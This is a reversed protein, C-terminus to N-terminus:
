PIALVIKGRTHGQEILRHATAAEALPLVTSVEMELAGADFWEACRELIEAQHARAAPLDRLMPTLMLEFGIRLNRNRAEKWCVDVGPDLLTVLDGYPAVTDITRRFTEGGVTDLAIAVGAGDTWDLVAAVFDQEPYLVVAEAGLARVRRAKDADAVTTIVRAGARIALQIAAQGVGGAGGHILVQAGPQLRARDFLAEWATILVLPAAAASHFDLSAPKHRAHDQHLVKYEAYCGQEGGLGGSCFWVSDGVRFRTVAAGTEVVIGAGDCGLVAPLADAYFLGRGRLKTDVPNIGAAHLRVRIQEPASIVPDAIDRLALLEPPGPATM